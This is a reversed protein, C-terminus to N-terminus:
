RCPRGAPPGAGAIIAGAVGAPNWQISAPGVGRNRDPNARITSSDTIATRRAIATAPTTIAAETARRPASAYTAGPDSM